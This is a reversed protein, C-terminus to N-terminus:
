NVPKIRFHHAAFFLASALGFLCFTAPEPSDELPNISDTVQATFEADPGWGGNGNPDSPQTGELVDNLNITFFEGNPLGGEKTRLTLNLTFLSLQDTQPISSIFCNSFFPGGSCSIITGIPQVVQVALGKWDVQSQNIFSLFGGGTLNSSFSFSTGLVPTGADPDSMTFVPDIPDAKVLVASTFLLTFLAAFQSCRKM